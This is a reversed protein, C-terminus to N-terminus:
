DGRGGRGTLGSSAVSEASRGGGGTELGGGGSDGGDSGVAGTLRSSGELIARSITPRM